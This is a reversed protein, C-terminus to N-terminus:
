LLVWLRNTTCLFKMEMYIYRNNFKFFTEYIKPNHRFIYLNNGLNEKIIKVTEKVPHKMRLSVDFKVM